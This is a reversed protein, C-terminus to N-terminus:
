TQWYDKSTMGVKIAIASAGLVAPILFWLIYSKIFLHIKLGELIKNWLYELPTRTRLYIKGPPNPDPQQVPICHGQSQQLSKVHKRTMNPLGFVVAGDPRIDTPNRLGHFPNLVSLDRLKQVPNCSNGACNDFPSSDIPQHWALRTSFRWQPLYKEQPRCVDTLCKVTSAFLDYDAPISTWSRCPRELKWNPCIIQGANNGLIVLTNPDKALEWWDPRGCFRPAAVKRIRYIGTFDRLDGFDWGRLDLNAKLERHELRTGIAQKRNDFWVLFDKVLDKFRYDKKKDDEETSWLLISECEQIAQLAAKGGDALRRAYHLHYLADLDPCHELLAAYAVHLVLSLEPVLWGTKSRCDYYIAQTRSSRSIEFHYDLQRGEIRQRQSRPALIEAGGTLSVIWPLRVNLTASFKEGLQLGRGDDCEAGSTQDTPRQTGLNVQADRLWGVFHRGHLVSQIDDQIPLLPSLKIEEFFTSLGGSVAHWQTGSRTKEVPFIVMPDQRIIMSDQFEIPLMLHWPIELGVAEVRPAIPFGWAVVASPYLMTWCSGLGLEEERAMRLPCLILETMVYEAEPSTSVVRFEVQSLSVSDGQSSRFSSALWAFQEISETIDDPKGDIQVM